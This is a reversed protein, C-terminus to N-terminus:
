SPFFLAYSMERRRAAACNIGLRHARADADPRRLDVAVRRRRVQCIHYHGPGWGLMRTQLPAAAAYSWASTLFFLAAPSRKWPLAGNGNVPEASVYRLCIVRAPTHPLDTLSNAGPDFEHQKIKEGNRCPAGVSFRLKQRSYAGPGKNCFVCVGEKM